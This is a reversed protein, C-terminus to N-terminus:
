SKAHEFDGVNIEAFVEHEVGKKTYDYFPIKAVNHLHLLYSRSYQMVRVESGRHIHIEKASDDVIGREFAYPNWEITIYEYPYSQEEEVGYILKKLGRIIRGIM